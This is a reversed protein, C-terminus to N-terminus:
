TNYIAYIIIVGNHKMYQMNCLNNNCWQTEHMANQM